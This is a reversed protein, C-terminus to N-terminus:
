LCEIMRQVGNLYHSLEYDYFWAEGVSGLDVYIEEHIDRIRTIAGVLGIFGTDTPDCDIVEVRDGVKFM